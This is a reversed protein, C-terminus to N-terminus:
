LSPDLRDQQMRWQAAIIGAAVGVNLSEAQGTRPINLRELDPIDRFAERVGRPENGLLLMRRSPLKATALSQGAMDAVWIDAANERVFSELDEVYSIQLRFLSGMAARVVKPNFAEVTEASCIVHGFGFWDAIRFITGLNGPDRVDDLIIAPGQPAASLSQLQQFRPAAPIHLIASLGEPQVQASLRKFQEPSAEHIKESPFDSPLEPLCAPLHVIAEIELPSHLAEAVAKHGEAIFMGEQQRYKKQLLSAFLKLKAKSLQPM